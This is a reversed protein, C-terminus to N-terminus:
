HGPRLIIRMGSRDIWKPVVGMPHTFSPNVSLREIRETNKAASAVTARV